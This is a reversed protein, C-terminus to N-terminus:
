SVSATRILLNRKLKLELEILKMLTASLGPKILSLLVAFVKKIVLAYLMSAYSIATNVKAVKKVMIDTGISKLTM